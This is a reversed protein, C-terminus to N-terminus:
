IETYSSLLSKSQSINYESNQNFFLSNEKNDENMNLKKLHINLGFNNVKKKNKYFEKKNIDKNKKYKITSNFCSNKHKKHNLKLNYINENKKYSGNENKDNFTKNKIEYNKINYNYRNRASNIVKIDKESSCHKIKKNRRMNDISYSNKRRFLNSNNRLYSKGKSMKCTSNNKHINTKYTHHKASSNISSDNKTPIYNGKEKSLKLKKNEQKYNNIIKKQKIDNKILDENNKKLSAIQNELSLLYDENKMLKPKIKNNLAKNLETMEEILYQKDNTLQLIKTNLNQINSLLSINENSLLNIKVKLKNINNKLNNINNKLNNINNKLNSIIQTKEDIDKKYNNYYEKEQEKLKHLEFQLKSNEEKVILIQKESEVKNSKNESYIAILKDKLLNNEEMIKLYIENNFNLDQTEELINYNNNYDNNNNNNNNNYIEKKNNDIPYDQVIIDQNELNNNNINNQINNYNINNMIDEEDQIHNVNQNKNALSNIDINQFSNNNNDYAKIDGYNFSLNINEKAKLLNLVSNTKHM